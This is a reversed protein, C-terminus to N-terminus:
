MLPRLGGIADALKPELVRAIDVSLHSHDRYVIVDDIVTSCADLPCLWQVPDITQAGHAAAIENILPYRDWRSVSGKRSFDCASPSSLNTSLCEPVNKGPFPTDNLVIVRRGPISLQSITSEYGNRWYDAVDDGKLGGSFVSLSGLILIEPKEVNNIREITNNRWVTCETYISSSNVRFVELDAAPCGAKTLTVLKYGRKSAIKVLAPFWQAAHSDGFLVITHESTEDAFTCRASELALRDTQCTNGRKSVEIVKALSLEMQANAAEPSGPSSTSTGNSAAAILRSSSPAATAANFAPIMLASVAVSFASVGAGFVFGRRPTKALRKDRLFPDEVLHYTVFSLVIALGCVGLRAVLGLDRGMIAPPIVLVPWHWLYLSYSIKGVFQFPASNLLPSLISDGTVSGVLVLVTGLVPVLAAVGPFLTSDDFVLLSYGILGMGAFMLLSRLARKSVILRSAMIAILAGAGLEWARAPLLYFTFPQNLSTMAASLAFSAISIVTILVFAIRARGLRWAVFILAPWVFYFQEEVALSWYHLLPSPAAGANLYDSQSIMFRFNAASISAFIGDLGIERWRLPSLYLRTTLVTVAVVLVAVPLLRRARRAYFERFRITDTDVLERVLLATILFGSIVYFVDVGAYGGPLFSLKAHYLVVALVALARLGQIEKIQKRDEM